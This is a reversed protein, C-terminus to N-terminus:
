RKEVFKFMTFLHLIVAFAIVPTVGVVSEPVLYVNLLTLFTNIENSFPTIIKKCSNNIDNKGVGKNINGVSFGAKTLM